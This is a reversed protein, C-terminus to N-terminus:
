DATEGAGSWASLGGSEFDDAFVGAFCRPGNDGLIRADDVAWYGEWEADFYRFRVQLDSASWPSLDIELAGAADEGAFGAVETWLGGTASSRVEIRAQEDLNGDFWLFEHRLRLTLNAFPSADVTPTILQEDMTEGPGLLESDVIAFPAGPLQRAGPDAATWTAAPGSGTGGDVVTWGAPIVGEDFGEDLLATKPIEGLERAFFGPEGPFAGGGSAISVLDIAARGACPARAAIRFRIPTGEGTSAADLSALTSETDLLELPASDAAAAFTARLDSAAAGGCAANRLAPTFRWTEGPDLVADGNGDVPELGRIGAIELAPDGGPECLFDEIQPRIDRMLVARNGVGPSACGGCHHLGVLADDSDRFVPAGVSSGETDLTGFYRLTAGDVVVDAGDGHTIELPRGGAHQPIYLREGSAPAAAAPDSWGWDGAPDGAVRHLSFDLASPPMPDCTGAFPSSAVTELCRYGRWGDAVPALSGCGDRYFGFIFEADLCAATDALCTEATLVVNRPSVNVGTCLFAGESS